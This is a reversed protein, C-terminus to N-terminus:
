MTLREDTLRSRGVGLAVFTKEIQLVGSANGVVVFRGSQIEKKSLLRQLDKPEFRHVHRNLKIQPHRALLTEFQQDFIQADGPRV